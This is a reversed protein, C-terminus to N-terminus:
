MALDPERWIFDLAFRDRRVEPARWDPNSERELIVFAFSGSEIETDLRGADFRPHNRAQQEVGAAHLVGADHAPAHTVGTRKAVLAPSCKGTMKVKEVHSEGDGRQELKLANEVISRLNQLDLPKSLFDFAGLKLAQVATEINGHATIVAM